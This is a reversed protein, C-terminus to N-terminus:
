FEICIMETLFAKIGSKNMRLMIKNYINLSYCNYIIVQKCTIRATIKGGSATILLPQPEIIM